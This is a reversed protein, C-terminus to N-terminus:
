LQQTQEEQHRKLILLTECMQTLEAESLDDFFLLRNQIEQLAQDSYTPYEFKPMICFTAITGTLIGLFGIGTVMLLSAVIRGLDTVPVWDGYGVSSTTVIAWWLADRFSIDEILYMLGAGGVVLGSVIMVVVHFHNTKIFTKLKSFFASFFIAVRVIKLLKLLRFLRVLRLGRFLTNFPILTLLELRHTKIYQWKNSSKFLGILYELLFLSWIVGDLVWFVRLAVPTLPLLLQALASLCAVLALGIMGKEHKTLKTM